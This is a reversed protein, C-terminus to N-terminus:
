GGGPGQPILGGLALPNVLELTTRTGTQDDQTFTATKVTLPLAGDMVLMPSVVHVTQNRQWLGGSPRLWGQVTAFITIMDESQWDRDAAGRGQLHAKSWAPIELVQAQPAYKGALSPFQTAYYPVSAVKAGWEEDTGPKSGMTSYIGNAMGMNFIIERGELISPRGLDGEYVTDDGGAPGVAVVLDGANNSTFSFSGLSRLPMELADLISEGPTISIRPFRDTPLTGGETLFKIGLPKVLAEAFQAYTVDKFEGTKTIAAASALGSTLNSGQIEIHHRRADFFVQRSNVLGTVAHEGALIVTCEMGPIIRLAAWNRALPMGESATFRYSYYPHEKLAMRVQVTEWDTFRRGDVILIAQESAKPFM